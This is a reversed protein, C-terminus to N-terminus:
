ASTAGVNLINGDPDRFWVTRMGEMVAVGNEWAIGEMEFTDFEIGAARLLAVEDDFESWGVEFSMATAQNTGAFSSPYVFFSGTGARYTVGEDVGGEEPVFGLVQEYFERSRQVDSTPLTPMPTHDSLM